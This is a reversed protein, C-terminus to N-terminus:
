VGLLKVVKIVKELLPLSTEKTIIIKINNIELKLKGESVRSGKEDGSSSKQDESEQNIYLFSQRNKFKKRWGNFTTVPISNEKCWRSITLGSNIYAKILIEKEEWTRNKQKSM